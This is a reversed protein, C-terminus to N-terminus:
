AMIRDLFAFSKIVIAKNHGSCAGTTYRGIM